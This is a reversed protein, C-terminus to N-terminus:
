DLRAGADPACWLLVGCYYFILSFSLIIFITCPSIHSIEDTDMVTVVGFKRPNIGIKYWLLIEVQSRNWGKRYKRVFTYCSCCSHFGCCCGGRYRRIHVSGGPLGGCGDSQLGKHAAAPGADGDAQQHLAEDLFEQLPLLLGLLPLLLQFLLLVLFLAKFASDLGREPFQVFLFLRQFRLFLGFVSLSSSLHLRAWLTSIDQLLLLLNDLLLVSHWYFNVVDYYLVSNDIAFNSLVPLSINVNGVAASHLCSLLNLSLFLICILLCVLGLRLRLGRM